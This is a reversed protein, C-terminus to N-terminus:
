PHKQVGIKPFRKTQRGLISLTTSSVNHSKCMFFAEREKFWDVYLVIL